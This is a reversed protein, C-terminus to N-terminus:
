KGSRSLRDMRAANFSDHTKGAGHLKGLQLGPVGKDLSKKSSSGHPAKGKEGSKTIGPMVKGHQTPGHPAKSFSRIGM